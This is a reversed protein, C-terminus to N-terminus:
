YKRVVGVVKGQIQVSTAYIPQMQSNAPALKIRNDERFFRKLTALGNELLAVVIDGNSATEQEEVVVFDGDLIGEEMMSNGRVELVFVRRQGGLLNPPVPMTANPDTYPEIPAGAAIYGLIPVEVGKERRPALIEIKRKRGPYIRILGKDALQQLEGFVTSPSTVGIAECIERLLPARGHLKLYQTLFELTARERDYIVAPM